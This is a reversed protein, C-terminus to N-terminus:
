KRQFEQKLRDVIDLITRRQSENLDDLYFYKRDTMGMMYDLSANYLLALKVLQEVSPTITNCEYGSITARSVGLRDAVDSQSLHKAERLEKLRIGFDYIVSIGGGRLRYKVPSASIIVKCLSM